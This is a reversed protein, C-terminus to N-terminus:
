LAGLGVAIALNIAVIATLGIYLADRERAFHIISALVRALPTVLLLLIGAGLLGRPDLAALAAPIDRFRLPLQSNGPSAVAAAIGAVMFVVSLWLGLRLLKPIRIELEVPRADFPPAEPPRGGAPGAADDKKATV